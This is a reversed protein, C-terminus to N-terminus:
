AGTNNNANTNSTSKSFLVKMDEYVTKTGPENEGALFRLMRYFSLANTYNDHDLLTKTDILQQALSELRQARTEVQTRANYDSDFEVKDIFNDIEADIAEMWESYDLNVLDAVITGHGPLLISREWYCKGNFQVRLDGM